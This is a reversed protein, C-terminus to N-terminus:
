DATLWKKSTDANNQKMTFTIPVDYRRYFQERTYEKENEIFVGNGEAKIRFLTNTRAEMKEIYQGITM